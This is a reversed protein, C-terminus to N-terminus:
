RGRSPAPVRQPAPKEGLSRLALPEWELAFGRTKGGGIEVSGVNRRQVDDGSAASLAVAVKQAQGASRAPVDGPRSRRAADAPVHPRRPRRGARACPRPRRGRRRLAARAGEAGRRDLRHRHPPVDAIEITDRGGAAIPVEALTVSTGLSRSVVGLTYTAAEEAHIAFRLDRDLPLLYLGPAGIAPLADPLDGWTERGDSGLRRGKADEIVLSPVSADKARLFPSPPMDPGPVLLFVFDRPLSVDTLWCDELSVHSLTFGGSTSRPDPSTRVPEGLADTPFLTFSLSGPSGTYEAVSESGLGLPLANDYVALRRFFTEGPAPFEIRIPAARPQREPGRPLRPSLISGAPMLQM